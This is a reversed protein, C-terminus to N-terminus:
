ADSIISSRTPTPNVTIAPTPSPLLWGVFRPRHKSRPWSLPASPLRRASAPFRTHLPLHRQNCSCAQAGQGGGVKQHGALWLEDGIIHPISMVRGKRGQFELDSSSLLWTGVAFPLWSGEEVLYWHDGKHPPPHPPPSPPQNCLDSPVPGPAGRNFTGFNERVWSRNVTDTDASEAVVVGPMFLDAGGVLKSHLGPYVTLAPM